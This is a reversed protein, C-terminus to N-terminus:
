RNDTKNNNIHEVVRKDTIIGHFCEYIFRHSMLKKRKGNDRIGIRYYGHNDLYGVPKKKKIHRIIGNRNGEYREYIPHIWYDNSDDFENPIPLTEATTM